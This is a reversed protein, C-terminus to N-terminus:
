TGSAKEKRALLVEIANDLDLQRNLNRFSLGERDFHMWENPQLIYDANAEVFRTLRLDNAELCKHLAELCSTAYVACLPELRGANMPVVLKRDNSMLLLVRMLAPDLLPMDCAVVIARPAAIVRLGTFIGGLPGRDAYVDEVVTLKVSASFFHNAATRSFEYEPEM